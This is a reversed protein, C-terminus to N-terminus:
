NNRHFVRKIRNFLRSFINTDNRNYVRHIPADGLDINTYKSSDCIYQRCMPCKIFKKSTNIYAIICTEHFSHNNICTIYITNLMTEFCIPCNDDDWVSEPKQDLHQFCYEDIYLQRKCRINKKTLGKCQVTM